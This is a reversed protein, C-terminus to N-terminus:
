LTDQRRRGLEDQLQRGNAGNREVSERRFEGGLGGGGGDGDGGVFGRRRCLMTVVQRAGETVKGEAKIEKGVNM